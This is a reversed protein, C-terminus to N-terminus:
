QNSKNWIINHIVKTPDINELGPIEGHLLELIVKQPPIVAYSPVVSFDDSKEYLFKLYDSQTSSVGVSFLSLTAEIM